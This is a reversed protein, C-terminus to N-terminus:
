ELPLRLLNIVFFDWGKNSPFFLHMSGYQETPSFIRHESLVKMVESEFTSLSQYLCTQRLFRVVESQQPWCPLVGLWQYWPCDM